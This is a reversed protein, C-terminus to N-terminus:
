GREAACSVPVSRKMLHILFTDTVGPCTWKGSGLGYATLGRLGGTDSIMEARRGERDAAM